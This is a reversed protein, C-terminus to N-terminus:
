GVRFAYVEYWRNLAEARNEFRLSQGSRAIKGYIDFWYQEHNPALERMWRGEANHLGTQKEFAANVEMFRYDLPQDDADFLVEIICFGEDMSNILTRHRDKSAKLQILNRVRFCLEKESFPRSLFDEAGLELMQLKMQEDTIDTLVLFPVESLD